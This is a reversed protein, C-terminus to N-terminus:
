PWWRGCVTYWFELSWVLRSVGDGEGSWPKLDDETKEYSGMQPSELWISPVCYWGSESKVKFELDQMLSCFPGLLLVYSNEWCRSNSCFSQKCPDFRILSGFIKEVALVFYKCSTDDHGRDPLGYEWWSGNVEVLRQGWSLIWSANRIRYKTSSSACHTVHNHSHGEWSRFQNGQCFKLEVRTIDGSLEGQNCRESCEATRCKKVRNKRSRCSM